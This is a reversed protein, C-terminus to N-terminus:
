PVRETELNARLFALAVPDGIETDVLAVVLDEGEPRWYCLVRDVFVNEGMESGAVDASVEGYVLCEDNDAFRWYYSRRDDITAKATRGESKPCAEEFAELVRAHADLMSFVMSTMYM